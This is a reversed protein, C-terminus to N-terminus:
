LPVVELACVRAMQTFDRDRHLVAAGARMAPVAVLCDTFRRVTVGARRCHAYLDGAEQYGAPGGLPLVPFPDLLQLLRDRHATDRAGALLEGVVVETVVLRRAAAATVFARDVPSETARLMEVFASTDAVIM